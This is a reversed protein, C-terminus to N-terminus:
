KKRRTSTSKKAAGTKKAAEKKAAGEKKTKKKQREMRAKKRDAAEMRRKYAEMEKAVESARKPRNTSRNALKRGKRLPKKIVAGNKDQARNPLSEFFELLAQENPTREQPTLKELKMVVMMRDHESIEIRWRRKRRKDSEQQIAAGWESRGAM